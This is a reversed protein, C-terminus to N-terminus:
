KAKQQGWKSPLKGNPSISQMGEPTYEEVTSLAVDDDNYGGISYIKGDVVSATSAGRAILMNAKETWTDMIPDFIEMSSLMNNNGNITKNGGIVYMKGNLVCSSPSNRPTPMDAKRTWKDAIPDYEEVASIATNGQINMPIGCIAYIKGNLVSTSLGARGTPMDAKKTWKDLVPDYEEVARLSAGFKNDGGIAYIKGNVASTSLGRRGTPMNSCKAWTDTSPDYVEVTSLGTIANSGGGIAYIKGDMVSTSFWFRATPMDAKQIWKDLVPDYEEVTKIAVFGQSEGGIVYIKGNVVSSALCFRATPMDARKVWEGGEGQPAMLLSNRMDPKLEGGKGKGMLSSIVAINSTKVVDVPIEGVKLVKSESPLPAFIPTGVDKFSILTPNISLIAIILGTALSLGYPLGKMQSVPHIKIKKVTEVIRFTFNAPLQKQHYATGIMTPIEERLQSLAERLRRDITSTSACLYGSIEKINMGGFYRLTLVERYIEPLSELADQITSYVADQNYLDMSVHDLLDAEQDEVFEYDPRRSKSKSWDKCMNATIRYIWGAFSDWRKLTRLNRYAKIFVEQTIDQADHFNRIRSFASAYVSKKYKDVLFGFATHDGDLCQQILYGDETRM